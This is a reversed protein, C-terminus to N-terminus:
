SGFFLMKRNDLYATVENSDKPEWGVSHGWIEKSEMCLYIGLDHYWTTLQGFLFRYLKIRIPKFLRFKGDIGLVYEGALVLSKNRVRRIKELVEPMFRITGLSIWIIRKPDLNKSLLDVVRTYDKEWGKYEFIPDFHLGIVFGEEQCVRAARIRDEIPPTGKEEFEWVYPSNLSWSVVLNKRERIRLLKKINISKTKLELVANSRNAFVPILRKNWNWMEPLALSDTFEGTGIRYTKDKNEDLVKILESLAELYNNFFIIDNHPYYGQLVCYNCSFPCNEAVRLVWYGCCLYNKTGPCKRIFDGKVRSYVISKGM